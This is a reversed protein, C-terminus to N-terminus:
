QTEPNRTRNQSELYPTGETHVTLMHRRILQFIGLNFGQEYNVMKLARKPPLPHTHHDQFINRVLAAETKINSIISNFEKKLNPDLVDSLAECISQRVLAVFTSAQQVKDSNLVL